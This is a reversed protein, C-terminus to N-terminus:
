TLNKNLIVSITEVKVLNEEKVTLHIPNDKRRSKM